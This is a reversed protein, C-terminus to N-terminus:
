APQDVDGILVVLLLLSLGAAIVLAAAAIQDRLRWPLWRVASDLRAELGHGILDIAARVGVTSRQEAAAQQM